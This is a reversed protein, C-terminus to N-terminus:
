YGIAVVELVLASIDTGAPVESWASPAAATVDIRYVRFTIANGSVVYDVVHVLNDVKLNSRVSVSLSLIKVLEGVTVTFGGTSYSTPGSVVRHVIKKGDATIAVLVM